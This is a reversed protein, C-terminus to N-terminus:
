DACCRFGVASVQRMRPWHLEAAMACRLGRENHQWSGGRIRCADDPGDGDCSNDWEAANGSLDHVQAYAGDPGVCGPLSAVDVLGWTTYDEADAGRCASTDLPDVYPYQFRGGASCADYWESM